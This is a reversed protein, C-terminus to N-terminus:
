KMFSKSECHSNRTPHVHDSEHTNSTPERTKTHQTHLSPAPGLEVMCTHAAFCGTHQSAELSLVRLWGRCSQTEAGGRSPLARCTLLPVLLSKKDRLLDKTESRSATPFQPNGRATQQPRPARARELRGHAGNRPQFSRRQARADERRPVGRKAPKASASEGKFTSPLRLIKLTSRQSSNSTQMHRPRGTELLRSEMQLRTHSREAECPRDGRPGAATKVRTGPLHYRLRQEWHKHSSTGVPELCDCFSVPSHASGRTRKRAKQGVLALSHQTIM